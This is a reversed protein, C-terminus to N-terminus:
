SYFHAKCRKSRGCHDICANQSLLRTYGEVTSKTLSHNSYVKLIAVHNYEAALFVISKGNKDIVDPRAGRELLKKFALTQGYAAATMLPTYSDVDVSEIDAGSCDYM